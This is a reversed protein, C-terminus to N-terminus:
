PFLVREPASYITMGEGRVLGILTINAKKAIEVGSNLAAALSAVIPVGMIAAKYVIDGTLRGSLVLVCNEFDLRKLAWAGIVKDVANHRGADEALTFVKKDIDSIMAAHVGRTRKYMESLLNLDKICELIVEARVKAKSEIRKIRKFFNYGGLGGCASLIVRSFSPALRLRAKINVTPTLTVYCSDGDFSIERIEDIKKVIGESLLHGVVFEKLTAPTCFITAYHTGGIFLHLPKEEAIYREVREVKKTNLNLRFVEVSAM